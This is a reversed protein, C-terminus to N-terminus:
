KTIKIIAEKLEKATQIGIQPRERLATDIVKALEVPIRPNRILIPVPVEDLSAEFPDLAGIINKPYYGTLLYYYSAAAAWV